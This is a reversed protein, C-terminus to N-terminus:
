VLGGIKGYRIWKECRAQYIYLLFMTSEKSEHLWTKLTTMLEIHKMFVKQGSSPHHFKTRRRVGEM